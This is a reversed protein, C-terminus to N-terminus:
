GGMNIMCRSYNEKSVRPDDVCQAFRLLDNADYYQAYPGILYRGEQGLLYGFRDVQGKVSPDSAEIANKLTDGKIFNDPLQDFPGDYYNNVVVNAGHVGILIKREIYPDAYFAFGTRRGIMIRNHVNSPELQDLVRETENLLYHFIKTERNFVLFLAIGSEDFVPGLYEETPHLLGEPPKVDTLDNFNFVVSHEGYTIRYKLAALKEVEVGDKKSLPRYQMQGDATSANAAPFYAFHAVGDDRDKAALRINGAYDVGQHAFRFYYYNETPYVTVEDPLSSLIYGFVSKIDTIELAPEKMLDELQAQNTKLTPMAASADKAHGGTAAGMALVAVAAALPLARKPNKLLKSMKM